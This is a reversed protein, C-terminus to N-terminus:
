SRTRLREVALQGVQRGQDKGVEVGMPFHIGGYIRSQAAEEAAHLFSDFTRTRQAETLSGVLDHTDVYPRSGLLDTLVVAAALSSVSHGSTYEPFQPTNVWTVWDPDIHARVYTVPRLLNHQYKVFWCSLFADALAVGTRAFAEVTVDLGLGRQSAVQGVILMWHGSPLGSQVPNDTWFRAITRQEDTLSLGARYTHMAEAHFASSPDTSFPVPDAPVVEDASRLVLPRIEGWYPEIAPGFNPPTSEWLGPGVPPTYGQEAAKRRIERYGDTDIWPRLASAVARGHALSAELTRAPVGAARRAAVQEDHFAAIAQRSVERDFLHDATGAVAASLATPWDHRTSRDATPVAPMGTLQGALSRHAPMGGRVSEYMAVGIYAYLRAASTPTFGAAHDFGDPNHSPATAPPAYGDARVRRFIHRMWAVAVHPGHDRTLLLRGREETRAAAPASPHAAAAAALLGARQLFARRSWGGTRGDDRDGGDNGVHQPHGEVM